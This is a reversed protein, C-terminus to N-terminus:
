GHTTRAKAEALAYAEAFAQSAEAFRGARYHTIGLGHLKVLDNM